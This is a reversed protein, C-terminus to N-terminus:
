ANVEGLACVCFIYSDHDLTYGNDVRPRPAQRANDNVRSVHEAARHKIRVCELEPNTRM